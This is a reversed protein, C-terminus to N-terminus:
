RTSGVPRRAGVEGLLTPMPRHLRLDAHSQCRACRLAFPLRQLRGLGIPEECEGCFGYEGRSLRALAAEVEALMRSRRQALGARIEEVFTRPSGPDGAQAPARPNAGDGVSGALQARRAALIEGMVRATEGDLTRKPKM